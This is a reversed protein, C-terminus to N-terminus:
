GGARKSVLESPPFPPKGGEADPIDTDPRDAATEADGYGLPWDGGSSAERGDSLPSAQPAGGAPVDQFARREPPRADWVSSRSADVTVDQVPEGPQRPEQGALTTGEQRPLPETPKTLHAVRVQQDADAEYHREDRRNGTTVDPAQLHPQPANPDTTM